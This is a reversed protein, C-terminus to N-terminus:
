CNVSAVSLPYRFTNAYQFTLTRGYALPKGDNVLCDNFRLRKFVRPNIIRASSFWGCNLHIASIYCGRVCVNIIEVTYTPIGNPLPQTAGQSIMIDSKSCKESWIRSPVVVAGHNNLLKRAHPTATTSKRANMSSAKQDSKVAFTGIILLSFAVALVVSLSGIRRRMRTPSPSESCM